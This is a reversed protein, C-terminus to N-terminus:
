SEDKEAPGGEELASQEAPAPPAAPAPPPSAPTVTLTQPYPHTGLRTLLASGLGVMLVLLGVLWGVCPILDAGAVVLYLVLGGLAANAPPTWTLHFAQALREGTEAALALWGYLAMLGLVALLLLALPIGVITIVLLVVLVPAVLLTLLGVGGTELPRALATQGVQRTPEPAFLVLLAALAALVVAKVAGLIVRGIIRLLWGEWGLQNAPGPASFAFWPARFAWPFAAKGTPNEIVQGLVQAQPDRQVRGGIAVADGHVLAGAQLNASGGFVVLDGTVEGSVTASGGFVAVNGRVVAGPEITVSGGFVSLDGNLTEGAALTFSQGFIVRGEGPAAAYASSPWALFLVLAFIWAISFVRWMGKRM